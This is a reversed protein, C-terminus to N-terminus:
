ACPRSAAARKAGPAPRYPTTRNRFQDPMTSVREIPARRDQDEPAVRRVRGWVTWSVLVWMVVASLCDREVFTASVDVLRRGLATCSTDAASLASSASI